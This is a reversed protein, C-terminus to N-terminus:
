QVLILRGAAIVALAALSHALWPALMNGTRHFLYGFVLGFGFSPPLGLVMTAAITSIPTARLPPLTDWVAFLLSCVLLGQVKGLVNQFRPQLWGRFLFEQFPSIVLFSFPIGILLQRPLIQDPLRTGTVWLASYSLVFLLTGLMTGWLLASQWNHRTFGNAVWDKAVAAWILPFAIGILYIAYSASQFFRSWVTIAYVIVYVILAQQLLHIKNVSEIKPSSNMANSRDDVLDVFLRM